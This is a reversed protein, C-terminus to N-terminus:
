RTIDWGKGRRARVILVSSTSSRVPHSLSLSLQLPASICLHLSASICLHLSAFICLHWAQMCRIRCLEKHAHADCLDVIMVHSDILTLVHM